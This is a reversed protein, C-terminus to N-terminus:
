FGRVSMGVTVHSLHISRSDLWGSVPSQELWGM